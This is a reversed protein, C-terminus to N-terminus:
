RERQYTVLIKTKQASLAKDHEQVFSFHLVAGDKGAVLSLPTVRSLQWDEAILAQRFRDQAKSPELAMGYAVEITTPHNGITYLLTSGAVKPLARVVFAPSRAYGDVQHLGYIALVAAFVGIALSIAGLRRARQGEVPLLAEKQSDRLNLAVARRKFVGRLGNAILVAALLLTFVHLISWVYVQM